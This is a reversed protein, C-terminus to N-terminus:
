DEDEVYEEEFESEDEDSDSGLKLMKLADEIDAGQLLTHNITDRVSNKVSLADGPKLNVIRKEIKKSKNLQEPSVKKVIIEDEEEIDDEEELVVDEKKEIKEIKKSKNLQEPSVKKEKKEKKEDDQSTEVRKTSREEGEVNEDNEDKEEDEEDKEEDEVNEYDLSYLKCNEIDAKTLKCNRENRFVGIVKRSSSSELILGTDEHVLRDITKNMKFVKRLPKEAPSTKKGMSFNSMSKVKGAKPLIKKPKPEIGEYKKHKACYANGGKPPTGCEEGQRTGKTFLYPCGGHSKVKDRVDYQTDLSEGKTKEEKSSFSVSIKMGESIDNWIGELDDLSINDFRSSILGSYEEIANKIVNEIGKTLANM